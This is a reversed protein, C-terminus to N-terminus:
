VMLLLYDLLWRASAGFCHRETLALACSSGALRQSDHVSPALLTGFDDYIREPDVPFPAQVNFELALYERLRSVLLFQYPKQAIQEKRDEQPAEVPVPASADNRSFMQARDQKFDDRQKQFVVQARCLLLQCCEVDKQHARPLSHGTQSCRSCSLAGSFM